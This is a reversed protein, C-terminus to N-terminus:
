RLLDSLFYLSRAPIGPSSGALERRAPAPEQNMCRLAVLDAVSILALSYRRAFTLLHPLEATSGDEALVECIVAAPYLGALRSLDVSAETHGARALVGGEAYRLPFLHGPSVLDDPASGPDLITAVTRARDAASIGSTIGDRADVPITFAAADKATRPAILPLQLQDLRRGVIPMCILGHAESAMLNIVSATAFQAPIALDGENERDEDDVIVVPRGLRFEAIADRVSALQTM